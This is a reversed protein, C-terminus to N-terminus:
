VQQQTFNCNTPNSDHLLTKSMTLFTYMRNQLKHMYKLDICVATYFRQLFHYFFDVMLVSHCTEPVAILKQIAHTPFRPVVHMRSQHKHHSYATKTEPQTQSKQDSFNQQPFSTLVDTSARMHLARKLSVM